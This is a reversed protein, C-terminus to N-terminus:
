LVICLIYLFFSAFVVVAYLLSGSFCKCSSIEAELDNSINEFVDLSVLEKIKLEGQLNTRRSSASFKFAKKGLETCVKLVTLSLFEQSRLSFNGSQQIYTQLHLMWQLWM